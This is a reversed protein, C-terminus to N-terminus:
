DDWGSLVLIIEPKAAVVRARVGRMHSRDTTVDVEVTAGEAALAEAVAAHAGHPADFLLIRM